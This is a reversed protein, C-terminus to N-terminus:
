RGATALLATATLEFGEPRRYTQLRETLAAKARESQAADLADIWRRMGTGRANQWYQEVDAYRFSAEDSLVRVDAFGAAVLPRELNEPDKFQLAPDSGVEMLGQKGFVAALDDAQSVRWTSVGLRGGPKLVRRLEGLARPLDPFFMLGFGCLVRDFSADPVELQEADMVRVQAALGRRRVEESALGVMAEALDVGVVQGAPGACEAAPALVAGRGTAVDLVQQGPEVGVVEVPRRGFHAFCGPGAADYDPAIRDFVARMQARRAAAEDSM